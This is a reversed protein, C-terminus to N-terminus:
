VPGPRTKCSLRMKHHSIAGFRIGLRHRNKTYILILSLYKSSLCFFNWRYLEKTYSLSDGVPSLLFGLSENEFQVNESDPGHFKRNQHGSRYYQMKKANGFHGVM